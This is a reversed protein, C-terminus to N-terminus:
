SALKNQSEHGMDYLWRAVRRDEIEFMNRNYDTRDVPFLLGALDRPPCGRIDAHPMCGTRGALEVRLHAPLQPGIFMWEYRHGDLASVGLRLHADGHPHEPGDAVINLYWFVSDQGATGRDRVVPDFEMFAPCRVGYMKESTRVLELRTLALLPLLWRTDAESFVDCLVFPEWMTKHKEAFPIVPPLELPVVPAMTAEAKRGTFLAAVAALSVYKFMDRRLM